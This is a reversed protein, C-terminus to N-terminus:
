LTKEGMLFCSLSQEFNVDDQSLIWDQLLMRLNPKHFPIKAWPLINGKMIHEKLYMKLIREFFFEKGVFNQVKM